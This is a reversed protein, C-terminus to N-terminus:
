ALIRLCGWPGIKSKHSHERSISQQSLVHKQRLWSKHCCTIHVTVTMWMYRLLPLAIPCTRYVMPQSTDEKLTAADVGRGRDLCSAPVV